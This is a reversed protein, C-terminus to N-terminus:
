QILRNLLQISDSCAHFQELFESEGVTDLLLSIVVDLQSWSRSIVSVLSEMETSKVKMIDLEREAENLQKKAYKLDQNLTKNMISLQSSGSVTNTDSRVSDSRRLSIAPKM